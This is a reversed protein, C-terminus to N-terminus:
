WGSAGLEDDRWGRQERDRRDRSREGGATAAREDALGGPEHRGKRARGSFARLIRVPTMRPGVNREHEGAILAFRRGFRSQLEFRYRTPTEPETSILIAQSASASLPSPLLHFIRFYLQLIVAPHDV